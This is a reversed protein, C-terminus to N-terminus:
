ETQSIKLSGFVDIEEFNSDIELGLWVNLMIGASNAEQSLSPPPNWRGVPLHEETEYNYITEPSHITIMRLHPLHVRKNRILDLLFPEPQMDDEERLFRTLDTDDYFVELVELNRPLSKFIGAQEDWGCLFVHYIRLTRLSSFESLDIRPGDGLGEHCLWPRTMTLEELTDKQSRLARVFASCTWVKAPEDGYHGDWEGQEADYHFTKLAAPWSLVSALAEEQAGCKILRLCKVPSTGIHANSEFELPEWDNFQHITLARVNPFWFFDVNDYISIDPTPRACPVIASVIHEQLSPNRKLSSKLQQLPDKKIYGRHQRVIVERYFLPHLLSQLQPVALLFSHLYKARQIPDRDMLYDYADGLQFFPIIKQKRDTQLYDVIALIVEIPLDLLSAMITVTAAALTSVFASEPVQNNCAPANLLLGIKMDNFDPTNVKELERIM